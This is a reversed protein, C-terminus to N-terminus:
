ASKILCWLGLAGPLCRRGGSVAGGENARMQPLRQIVLEVNGTLSDRESKGRGEQVVGLRGYGM